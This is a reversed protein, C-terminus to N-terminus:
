HQGAPGPMPPPDGMTIPQPSVTMNPFFEKQVAHVIVQDGKALGASVIRLGEVSRGLSIDRRLAANEPGLTYVFKRDQDTLIARDDILVVQEANLGLLKVRAFLGPILRNDKNELVARLRVTGTNPDAQNNVFDVYGERPFGEEDSLGVLVSSAKNKNGAAASQQANKSYRLYSLEDSDFYVYVPDLSVINMLVDPTPDSSVLNGKTVLARGTRGTIPSRIETYDLNLRALSLNAEASRVNANSQAETAVSQDYEGESVLNREYLNKSRGREVRALNAQARARVLEAEAVELEARFPEQDIVFLLGGKKVIDGERYAVKQIVGGVRPRIDIIEQAEIRGNFEDWPVIDRVIVDAVSVSPPPFGGGGQQNAQKDCASLFLLATATILFVSTVRNLTCVSM